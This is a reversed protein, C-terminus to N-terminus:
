AFEALPIHSRGIRNGLQVGEVPSTIAGVWVDFGDGAPQLTARYMQSWIGGAKLLVDTTQGWNIGGDSVAGVVISGGTGVIRNCFILAYYRGYAHIVDIHWADYNDPFAIQCTVRETADSLWIDTAHQYVVTGRTVSWLHIGDPRFVVGPSMGTIFALKKKKGWNVGNGTIFACMWTKDTYERYYLIMRDNWRDYVLDTDSNYGSATPRGILPNTLGPPVEWNIGDHSAVICPDEDFGNPDSYPTFAMWYRYGRWGTVTDVVDPHYADGPRAAPSPVDLWSTPTYDRLAPRRAHLGGKVVPVAPALRASLGIM